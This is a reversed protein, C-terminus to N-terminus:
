TSKTNNITPRRSLTHTFILSLSRIVDQLIFSNRILKDFLFSTTKGDARISQKLSFLSHSLPHSEAMRDPSNLEQSVGKKIYCKRNITSSSDIMIQNLILQMNELPQLVFCPIKVWEIGRHAM